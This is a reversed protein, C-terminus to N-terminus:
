VMQLDPVLNEVQDSGNWMGELEVGERAKVRVGVEM